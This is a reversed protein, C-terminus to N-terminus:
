LRYRYVVVESNSYIKQLFEIEQLCSATAASFVYKINNEKVLKMMKSKSDCKFFEEMSKRRVSADISLGSLIIEDSYYVPKGSYASILSNQAFSIDIMVAGDEQIKLFSIAKVVESSVAGSPKPPYAKITYFVGPLLSLWLLTFIVIGLLKNKRYLDAFLVSCLLSLAIIATYFFQITVIADGKYIFLMTSAISFLTILSLLQVVVSRPQDLKKKLTLFGLILFNLNVGMFIFLGEAYLRVIGRYGGVSLLYQRKLEWISFNLRDPAEYMTKIFWFPSVMLTQKGPSFTLFLFILGIAVGIVFISIFTVRKKLLYFVGMAGLSALLVMATHSKISILSGTLLGLLFIKKFDFSKIKLLMYIILLLIAMSFLLPYNVSKSSFYDVWAVSPWKYSSPYFYNAIYYWNSSISILLVATVGGFKSKTLQRGVLYALSAYLLIYFPGILQYFLVDAPINTIRNIIAMQLDVLYHYNSLITGSFLPNEPPVGKEISNALSLHWNSDTSHVGGLKLTSGNIVGFPITILVNVGTVVIILFIVPLNFKLKGQLLDWKLYFIVLLSQLIVFVPVIKWLGVEGLFFGEVTILWLGLIVSILVGSTLSDEKFSIRKLIFVGVPYAVFLVFILFVLFYYITM